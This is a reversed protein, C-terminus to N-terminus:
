NGLLVAGEIKNIIRYQIQKMEERLQSLEVQDKYYMKALPMPRRDYEDNLEKVSIDDNFRVCKEIKSTSIAKKQNLVKVELKGREINKKLFYIENLSKCRRNYLGHFLNSHVTDNTNKTIDNENEEKQTDSLCNFSKSGMIRKESRFLKNFKILQRDIDSLSNYKNESITNQISIPEDFNGGIIVKQVM